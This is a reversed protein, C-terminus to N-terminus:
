LIESVSYVFTHFSENSEGEVSKSENLEDIEFSTPLTLNKNDNEM